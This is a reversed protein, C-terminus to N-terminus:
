VCRLEMLWIMLSYARLLLSIGFTVDVRVAAAINQRGLEHKSRLQASDRSRAQKRDNQLRVQKGLNDWQLNLINTQEEIASTSTELSEIATRIDQELFPRSANIDSCRLFNGIVGSGGLKSHRFFKAITLSKMYASDFVCHSNKKQCSRTM